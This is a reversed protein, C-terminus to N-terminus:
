TEEGRATMAGRHFFAKDADLPTTESLGESGALIAGRHM